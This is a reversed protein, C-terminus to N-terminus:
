SRMCFTSLPSIASMWKGQTARSRRSAAAHIRILGLAWVSANRHACWARGTKPAMMNYTRRETPAHVCTVRTNEVSLGTVVRGRLRSALSSLRLTRPFGPYASFMSGALPPTGAPGPRRM